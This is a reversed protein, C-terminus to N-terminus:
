MSSHKERRGKFVVFFFEHFLRNYRFERLFNVKKALHDMYELDLEFLTEIHDSTFAIPVLLMNLRRNKALGEISEDTQPGKYNTLSKIKFM